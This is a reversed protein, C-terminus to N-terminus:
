FWLSTWIFSELLLSPKPTFGETAKDLFDDDEAMVDAFFINPSKGGLERTPDFESAYEAALTLLISPTFGKM